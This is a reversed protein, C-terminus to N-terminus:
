ICVEGVSKTEAEVTIGDITAGAPIAFGFNKAELFDSQSDELAVTAYANNSSAANAADTWPTLGDSVSALTSPNLPGESAM